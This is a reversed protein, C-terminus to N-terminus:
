TNDPANHSFRCTAGFKCRNQQFFKCPPVNPNSLVLCSFEPLRDEESFIPADRVPRISCRLNDPLCITLFAVSLKKRVSSPGGNFFPPLNEEHAEGETIGDLVDPNELASSVCSELIAFEIYIGLEQLLRLQLMQIATSMLTKKKQFTITTAFGLVDLNPYGYEPSPQEVGTLLFYKGAVSQFLSQVEREFRGSIYLNQFDPNMGVVDVETRQLSYEKTENSVVEELPPSNPSPDFLIMDIVGSGVSSTYESRLFPRIDERMFQIEDALAAPCLVVLQLRFRSGKGKRCFFKRNWQDVEITLDAEITVRNRGSTPNREMDM